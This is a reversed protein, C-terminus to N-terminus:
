DIVGVGVLKELRAIADKRRREAIVTVIEDIETGRTETNEAARLIETCRRIEAREKEVMARYEDITFRQKIWVNVSKGNNHFNVELRCNLDSIWGKVGGYVPYGANKTSIEDKEYDCGLLEGALKWAEERSNVEYHRDEKREMREM